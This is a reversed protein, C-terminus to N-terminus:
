SLCKRERGQAQIGLYIERVKQDAQIEKPNGEAIIQGYYLVMIRNALKSVLDMDHASLLVTTEGVLNHIMDVLHDSEVSTLGASPEDLLLLRPKSALALIIEVHRQQGHSLATIPFDKEGWLGVLELLERAKSLNNKYARIPRIMQYRTTQIGQIALLVNTLLSLRPFLSSIQFSRALGISVRTHPPLKTVDHGLLYVRGAKPPILGTLVNLLTTKGAGNPGILAVKEGTELRFSLGNLIQLGGYSQSLNELRLVDMM